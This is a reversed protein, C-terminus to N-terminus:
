VKPAFIVVGIGAIKCVKRSSESFLDGNKGFHCFIEAIGRSLLPYNINYYVIDNHTLTTSLM